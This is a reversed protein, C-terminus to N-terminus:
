SNMDGTDYVSGTIQSPLTQGPGTSGGVFTQNGIKVQNQAALPPAWKPPSPMYGYYHTAGGTPDPILGSYVKDVIDGIKAYAPNAPSLNQAAPNSEPVGPANWPSFEHFGRKPNVGAAPALVVGSIGQGYGGASVRNLIAHAIAAQGLPPEGAAEGYVTKILLDRDRPDLPASGATSPTQGYLLDAVDNGPM